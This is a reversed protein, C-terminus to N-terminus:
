SRLQKELIYIIYNSFWENAPLVNKFREKGFCYIGSKTYVTDVLNFYRLFTKKFTDKTFVTIHNNSENWRPFTGKKLFLLRSTIHFVNPLAFIFKAGPKIVRHIERMFHYPNEMHEGIGWATVGDFFNDQYPLLETNLDTATFKMKARDPFELVDYFDAAHLNSFGNDQLFKTFAGSEPGCELIVGNKSFYKLALLPETTGRFRTGGGSDIERVWEPHARMEEVTIYAPKKM